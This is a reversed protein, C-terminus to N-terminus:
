NTQSALGSSLLVVKQRGKGKKKGGASGDEAAGSGAGSGSAGGWADADDLVTRAAPKSLAARMRARKDAESASAPLSPFDLGNPARPAAARSTSSSSAPRSISHPTTSAPRSVPASRLGGGGLAPFASAGSSASSSSGGAASSWATSGGTPVRKKAQGAKSLGPISKANSASMLAPFPNSRPAIPAPGASNAAREVRDWTSSANGGSRHQASLARQSTPQVSTPVGNLTPALPALSPFNNESRLDRWAIQVARKKEADDLLDAFGLIVSEAEDTRQDFVHYLQDVLDSAAIEGNRFSRAAIKFGAVKGEHGGTLDQVRRLLAAHRQLTAADRAENGSLPAGGLPTTAGSSPPSSDSTLQGGFRSARAGSGSAVPAGLGPVRREGSGSGAGTGAAPTDGRPAEVFSAAATRQAQGGRRRNGGGAGAGQRDDSSYVFNTEIRRAEKRSRQDQFTGVGHVELAHAQLDLESEFVVFKQALCDPHPCIYHDNKFHQELRDYNLHYQHRIGQRVCIFCEEHQERCHKYLGDSDYFWRKCFGCMAHQKDLHADLETERKRGAAGGAAPATSFLEHEHAFIKKNSCCLDCLTCHHMSRVHRKLDSWGSLIHDCAQAPSDPAASSPDSLGPKYPCNFRLLSLTDELQARTEFLIGLKTDSFPTHEPAYDEFPKDESDTFIVTPCETKCFTCEHKKYLARLRISCTHCTRHNCSGVSWYQVPEACIFCTADDGDGAEGSEAAAKAMAAAVANIELMRQDRASSASSSQPPRNQQQQQQAPARGKGKGRNGGHQQEGRQSGAGTGASAPTSAPRAPQGDGGETLRGGFAARRSM